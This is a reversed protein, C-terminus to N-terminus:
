VFDDLYQTWRATVQEQPQKADLRLGFVSTMSRLLEQAARVDRGADAAALIADSLRELSTLAVPTDLDDDMAAAFAARFPACPLPHGARGDAAAARRLRAVMEHARKLEEQNHAWPCRYHHLALYVRLSDPSWDQLLDDVMVLNGLSKSMKEGEHRVMATHVWWRVFPKEGSAGQAQAIESEHHPFILDSGGAHVDITEGLFHMAMTSCEIHWGPRGQGWPSDWAPEGPSEAQWLVFDLPDRKNPDDPNNGRENALPLMEGRSLRSLKGYGPWSDIHFYVSGGAEYAVKARLLKQVMEIMQPIAGTARPFGDPPRVNLRIMDLIFRATWRDGLEKWHEGLQGAKRLIDDDVDTVNQVYRVSQGQFELYRILIDLATYTFAHGLHTADYPTIGCVYATLPQQQLTLMKVEQSLTDYLQM